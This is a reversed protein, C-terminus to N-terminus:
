ELPLLVSADSIKAINLLDEPVNTFKVTLNATKCDRILNILWALGASDIREINHLDFLIPRQKDLKDVASKGETPWWDKRITYMTLEGRIAVLNDDKFTLSYNSM